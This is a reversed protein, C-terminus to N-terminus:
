KIVFKRSDIRTGNAYLTYFYIGAHLSTVDVEENTLGVPTNSREIRKIEKGTIDMISLVTNANQTLQYPITLKDSAPNPYAGYLYNKAQVELSNVGTPIQTFRMTYYGEPATIPKVAIKGNNTTSTLYYDIFDTTNLTGPTINGTYLGNSDVTLNITNWINTGRIKWKCQASAIGSINTIRAQIAYSGQIPQFGDVSPHWFLVSNNTPIQMTICHISGGAPAVARADIPIVKYGPLYKEYLKQVEISQEQNGDIDDSYTPYIFTKNLTIGNIYTRAGSDVESCTKLNYTGDDGTPTPFRYIRFPRNYTSKLTTLYQYNDEILKKDIATIETPYQMVLITQEDILKTYLDIHGTGGDCQLAKLNVNMTSGFYQTISDLTQAGIWGRQQENASTFVDSFFVRGFGDSMLNGGEGYVKSEFNRVGMHKALVKPYTDDNDRGDYYKLDIFALASDKEGLYIGNPGYDRIWWDDGPAIFFVYNQTLPWGLDNMFAKVKLTDAVYPVRIWVPLEDSIFKALQASVYGYDSFTDVGIINGNIGYHYAWSICVAQSEEFEGPYRVKGPMNFGAKGFVTKDKTKHEIALQIEKSTKYAPLKHLPYQAFLSMGSVLLLSTVIIKKLM